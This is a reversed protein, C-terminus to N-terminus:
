KEGALGAMRGRVEKVQPQLVPDADQWLNVFNGYYELAKAHDGKAEYMEGLRKYTPALTWPVDTLGTRSDIMTVSLAYRALASDPEGAREWARAADTLDCIPCKILARHADYAMAAERWRGEAQATMAVWSVSDAPTRQDAPRVRVWEDHLQRVRDARGAVAYGYAVGM